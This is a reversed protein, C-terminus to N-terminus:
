ASEKFLSPMYQHQSLSLIMHLTKRLVFLVICIYRKMWFYKGKSIISFIRWKLGLRKKWSLMSPFALSTWSLNSLPFSLLRRFSLLCAAPNLGSSPLRLSKVNPVCDSLYITALPASRVCHFRVFLTYSRTRNRPRRSPCIWSWWLHLLSQLAHLCICVLKLRAPAALLSWPSPNSAHAPTWAVAKM